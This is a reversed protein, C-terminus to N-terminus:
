GCRFVPTSKIQVSRPIQSLLVYRHAGRKINRTTHQAASPLTQTSDTLPVLPEQGGPRNTPRSNFLCILTIDSTNPLCLTQRRLYITALLRQHYLHLTINNNNYNNNNNNNNHLNNITPSIGPTETGCKM